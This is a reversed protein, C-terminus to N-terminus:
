IKESYVRDAGAGAVFRELVEYPQAGVISLGGVMFAPVGTIGLAKCRSWDSDVDTKFTRKELVEIAEKDPLGISAAIEVLEGAKGINKGDVYYARFMAEHYSDGRGKSEAWKGLEQALRSNYTMKREGMPLGVSEAARKLRSAMATMDVTRGAFLEELTLGDEPTDPHLPFAVWRVRIDYNKRLQEIRV